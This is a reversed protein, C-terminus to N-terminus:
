PPAEEAAQLYGCPFDSNCIHDFVATLSRDRYMAITTRSSTSVITSGDKWHRFYHDAKATARISASAGYRYSGAGSVYGTGSPSVSLSMRRYKRFVATVTKGSTMSVTTSASAVSAIGSGYWRHFYYGAKPTARVRASRGCDRSGGAGVTGGTGARVTLTCQRRAFSAHARKNGTMGVKASLATGSADGSWGSLYYWRDPTATATAETGCGYSGGGGVSGGTGGTVTLTCQRRAFSAHARKNGTMGVKASLATGSADGSWGSLRFWRDPTATATAETGCAYSGGGGASGGPGATVTLTYQPTGFSATVTKDGDMTIVPAPSSGSAAGSWATFRRCSAATALVGVKDGHYYPGPPAAQVSGAGAPSVKLTLTYTLAEFGARVSKDGDLTVKLPNATGSADGSWGSLRYGTDPAATVSQTTGCDFTGGGSVSGGAGATATLACRSFHATVSKSGALTVELPNATGSADGSWRVFRYGGAPAATVAAEAGCDGSLAGAATLGGLAATVNGGAKPSAELSLTCQTTTTAGPSDGPQATDGPQAPALAPGDGRDGRHHEQIAYAGTLVTASPEGFAHPAGPLARTTTVVRYEHQVGARLEEAEATLMPTSPDAQVWEVTEWLATGYLRQQVEFGHAAHVNSADWILTHPDRADNVRLNEVAGPRYAKRYNEIDYDTPVSQDPLCVSALSRGM